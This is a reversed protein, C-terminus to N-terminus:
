KKLHCIITFKSIVFVVIRDIKLMGSMLGNENLALVILVHNKILGYCGNVQTIEVMDKPSLIKALTDFYNTKLLVILM